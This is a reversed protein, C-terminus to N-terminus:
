ARPRAPARAAGPIAAVAMTLDVEIIIWRQGRRRIVLFTEHGRPPRRRQAARGGIRRDVELSRLFRATRKRSPQRSKADTATASANRDDRDDRDERVDRGAVQDVLERVRDHVVRQDHAQLRREDRLDEDQEEPRRGGVHERRAAELAARDEDREDLQRDHQRRRDGPMPRSTAKPRKPSSPSSMPPQSANVQIATTSRRSARRPAREVDALRDGRELGDVGVEDGRRAREAGARDPREEADRQRERAAPQDGPLRDGQGAPEALEAGRDHEGAAELALRLRERERDVLGNSSILPNSTASAILASSTIMLRAIRSESLILPRQCRPRGDDACRGGSPASDHVREGGLDAQRQAGEVEVDLQLDLARDREDPRRAGPLRRHEARDRPEHARGRPRMASPSSTQSSALLSARGRAPRAGRRARTGPTRARGACSRACSRRRRRDRRADVLVELAEADRVERRWASPARPRRAAARRGRGRARARGRRAAARRAARRREVRVRLRGHAALQLLQQVLEPQGRQEDRVVVLVGGDSASLTPTIM